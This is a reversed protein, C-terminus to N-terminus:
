VDKCYSQHDSVGGQHTEDHVWVQGSALVSVRCYRKRKVLRRMTAAIRRSYMRATNECDTATRSVSGGPCVAATMVRDALMRWAPIESFIDLKMCDTVRSTVDSTIESTKLQFSVSTVLLPTTKMRIAYEIVVGNRTLPHPRTWCDSILAEVATFSIKLESLITTANPASSFIICRYSLHIPSDFLRPSFIDGM